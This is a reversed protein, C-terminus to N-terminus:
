AAQQLGEPTPLLIDLTANVINEAMKKRSEQDIKAAALAKNQRALELFAELKAKDNDFFAQLEGIVLMVVTEEVMDVLQRLERQELKMSKLYNWARNLRQKDQEGVLSQIFPSVETITAPVESSRLESM